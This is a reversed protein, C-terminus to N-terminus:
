SVLRNADVEYGVAKLERVLDLTWRDNDDFPVFLVGQYDSPLEFNDTNRHLALVRQRGLAGLFYGLELIVNQRARPRATDSSDSRPFAMDDPSLLVVAFGVDSHETFKEIITRGRNPQEHLIIPELSLRELIRATKQKMLDDHGHVVFIRGNRPSQLTAPNTIAAGTPADPSSAGILDLTEIVGDFWSVIKAKARSAIGANASANAASVEASNDWPPDDFVGYGGGGVVIGLAWQPTQTVQEFDGFHTPLLARIMPRARAAWSAVGDWPEAPLARLQDLLTRLSEVQTPTM